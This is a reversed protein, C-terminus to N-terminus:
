KIIKIMDGAKPEGSPYLNNILRIQAEAYTDLNSRKALKAVTDGKRAKVLTINRGEALSVESPKLKRISKTTDFFTQNPLQAKGLGTVIFAQQGRTVMAARYNLQQGTKQDVITGTGALAQDESTPLNSGAIFGQFKSSLIRSMEVPPAVNDMQMKIVQSGDPSSAGLVSQGNQVKWGKPFEVYLNL